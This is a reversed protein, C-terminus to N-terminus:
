EIPTNEPLLALCDLIANLVALVCNFQPTTLNKQLNIQNRQIYRRTLNLTTGLSIWYVKRGM